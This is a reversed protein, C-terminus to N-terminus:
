GDAATRTQCDCRSEDAHMDSRQRIHGHLKRAACILDGENERGPDDIVVIMKGKKLDTVAEEISNFEM